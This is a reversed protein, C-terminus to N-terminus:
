SGSTISVACAGNVIDLSALLKVRGILEIFGNNEPIHIDIDAVRKLPYQGYLQVLFILHPNVSPILLFTDM